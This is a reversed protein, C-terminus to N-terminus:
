TSATGAHRRLYQAQQCAKIWALHVLILGMVLSAVPLAIKFLEPSNGWWTTALIGGAALWCPGVCTGLQQLSTLRELWAAQDVSLNEEVQEFNVVAPIPQWEERVYLRYLLRQYRIPERPTTTPILRLVGFSDQLVYGLVYAIGGLLLYVVVHDDVAPLRDFVLLFSGLTSGGGILFTLDRTIFRRLANVLENM